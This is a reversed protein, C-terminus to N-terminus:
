WSVLVHQFVRLLQFIRGNRRKLWLHEIFGEDGEAVSFVMCNEIGTTSLSKISRRAGDTVALETGRHLFALTPM